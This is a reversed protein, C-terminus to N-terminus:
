KQEFVALEQKVHKKKIHTYTFLLTLNEQKTFDSFFFIYINNKIQDFSESVPLCIAEVVKKRAM